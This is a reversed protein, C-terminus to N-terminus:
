FFQFFYQEITTGQCISIPRSLQVYSSKSHSFKNCICLTRCCVWGIQPDIDTISLSYDVQPFAGNFSDMGIIRFSTVYYFNKDSIKIFRLNKFASMDFITLNEHNCTNMPIILESDSSSLSVCPDVIPISSTPIPNMVYGELSEHVNSISVSELNEFSEPLNVNSVNNM